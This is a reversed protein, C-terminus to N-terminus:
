IVWPMATIYLYSIYAVQKLIPLKLTGRSPPLNQRSVRLSTCVMGYPPIVHSAKNIFVDGWVGEGTRGEVVGRQHTLAGLGGFVVNM